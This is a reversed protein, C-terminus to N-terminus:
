VHARGIEEAFSIKRAPYTVHAPTSNFYFYPPQASDGPQFRVEKTGRSLYLADKYNLTYTVGDAIINGAGGVNVIGLERRELFYNSKLPDITELSIGNKIPLAGGVILRDYHSYVMKIQDPEFLSDVLFADRVQKTDMAKFHDPHVAYRITFGM